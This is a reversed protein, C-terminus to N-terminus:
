VTLAQISYAVPACFGGGCSPLTDLFRQRILGARDHLLDSRATRELTDIVFLSPDADLRIHRGLERGLDVGRDPATLLRTALRAPRILDADLPKRLGRRSEEGGGAM